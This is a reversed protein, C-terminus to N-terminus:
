IYWDNSPFQSSRSLWILQYLNAEPFNTFYFIALIISSSSWGQIFRSLEQRFWIASFAPLYMLTKPRFYLEHFQATCNKWVQISIYENVGNKLFNGWLAQLFSTCYSFFTTTWVQILYGYPSGESPTHGEQLEATLDIFKKLSGKLESFTCFTLDRLCCWHFNLRIKLRLIIKNLRIKANIERRAAVNANAVGGSGQLMVM